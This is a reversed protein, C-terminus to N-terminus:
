LYQTNPAILEPYWIDHGKGGKRNALPYSGHDDKFKDLLYNEYATEKGLPCSSVLLRLKDQCAIQWMWEGGIHNISKGLGFRILARVRNRVNGKGIYIIDTSNNENIKRWKTELVAFDVISSNSNGGHNNFLIESPSMHYVVYVGSFKHIDKWNCRKTISLRQILDQIGYNGSHKDELYPIDSSLM